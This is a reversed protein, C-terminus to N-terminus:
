WYNQIRAAIDQLNAIETQLNAEIVARPMGYVVCTDGSQAIISGGKGHINKFAKVGDNGMGTMIVGLTASGYEDVVSQAMIDVSPRHLTDSPEDTIRVTGNKITMHKGGPALLALGSKVRDGSVAEKVDIACLSDLRKALPGTFAPPMHQVILIPVPTTKPLKTLVAQLAPPGGTSTGIAVVKAKSSRRASPASPPPSVSRQVPKSTVPTRQESAPRHLRYREPTSKRAFMKVKQILEQEIKVIDTSVFSTQKAIFDLAGLDLARLTAEAGETTLSSVMIVPVPSKEMIAELASLGDMIPMEIDMTVINPKLEGVLDIADRGNKATGIVKIAPDKELMTTIMKRMFASDDVVLVRILEM